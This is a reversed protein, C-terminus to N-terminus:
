HMLILSLDLGVEQWSVGGSVGSQEPFIKYRKRWKKKEKKKQSTEDNRHSLEERRGSGRAWVGLQALHCYQQPHAKPSVQKLNLTSNEVPVSLIDGRQQEGILAMRTLQGALAAWIIHLSLSSSLLLPHLPSFFAVHRFSVPTCSGLHSLFQLEAPTHSSPSFCVLWGTSGGRGGPQPSVPSRCLWRKSRQENLSVLSCDYHDSWTVTALPHRQHTWPSKLFWLTNALPVSHTHTHPHTPINPPPVRFM